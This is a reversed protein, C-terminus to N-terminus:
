IKVHHISHETEFLEYVNNDRALLVEALHEWTLKDQIPKLFFGEQAVLEEQTDVIKEGDFIDETIELTGCALSPTVQYSDSHLSVGIVPWIKESWM